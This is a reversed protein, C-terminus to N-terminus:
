KIASVALYYDRGTSYLEMYEAPNKLFVFEM